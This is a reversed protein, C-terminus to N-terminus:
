PRIFKKKKPKIQKKFKKFCAMIKQSMSYLYLADIIKWEFDKVTLRVPSRERWGFRM